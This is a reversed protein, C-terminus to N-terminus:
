ETKTKFCVSLILNKRRYTTSERKKTLEFWKEDTHVIRRMDKFTPMANSLTTEDVMSVSFKLRAIRNALKLYPKITSTHKRLEGWKLRRQLSTYPVKLSLALARMTSRKNYPIDPVRELGLDKRKRGSRGKKKNSM